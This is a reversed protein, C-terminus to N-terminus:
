PDDILGNWLIPRCVFRINQRLEVMLVSYSHVRAPWTAQGSRVDYLILGIDKQFVGPNTEM